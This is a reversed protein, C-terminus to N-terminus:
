RVLLSKWALCPEVTLGQTRFLLLFSIFAYLSAEWLSHERSSMIEFFYDEPHNKKKIAKKELCEQMIQIAGQVPAWSEKGTLFSPTSHASQPHCEVAQIRLFDSVGGEVPKLFSWLNQDTPSSLLNTRFYWFCSNEFIQKKSQVPFLLQTTPTDPKRVWTTHTLIQPKKPAQPSCSLLTAQLFESHLWGQSRKDACGALHAGGLGM